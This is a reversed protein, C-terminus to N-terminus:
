RRAGGFAFMHRATGGMRAQVEAAEGVSGEVDRPRVDLMYVGGRPKIPALRLSLHEVSVPPCVPGRTQVRAIESRHGADHGM